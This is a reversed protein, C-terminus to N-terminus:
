ITASGASAVSVVPPPTLSNLTITSGTLTYGTTSFTLGTASVPGALTVTGATGAFVAANGDTWATDSTGNWWFNSTSDWTGSGGSVVPGTGAPDWSLDAAMASMTGSCVLLAPVSVAAARLIGNIRSKRNRRSTTM